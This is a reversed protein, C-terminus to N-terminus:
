YVWVTRVAKEMNARRTAAVATPASARVKPVASASPLPGTTASVVAAKAGARDAINATITAGEAGDDDGFSPKM